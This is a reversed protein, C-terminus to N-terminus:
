FGSVRALIDEKRPKRFDSFVERRLRSKVSTATPAKDVKGESPTIGLLTGYDNINRITQQVQIKGEIGSTEEISNLIDMYELETPMTQYIYRLPHYAQFSRKVTDVPDTKGMAEAEEVARRWSEDFWQEDDVVAAMLMDSVWPRMRTTTIGRTGSFTRVDLDLYRGAARLFNNTGIRQAMAYETEFLPEGGM